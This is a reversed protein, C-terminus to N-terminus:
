VLERIFIIKGNVVSCLNSCCWQIEFVNMTSMLRHFNFDILIRAKVMNKFILVVNQGSKKEIKNRRTVYIAYKAQGVIFNIVHCKSKQKPSYFFGLIFDQKTFRINFYCFFVKLLDFIRNLRNCDMFCHFITERESCFPCKDSVTPNLHSVFANM